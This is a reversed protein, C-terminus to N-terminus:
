PVHKEGAYLGMDFRLVPTFSVMDTIGSDDPAVELAIKLFGPCVFCSGEPGLFSSRPLFKAPINEIAKLEFYEFPAASQDLLGLRDFVSLHDSVM